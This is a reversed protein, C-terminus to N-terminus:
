EIVEDARALLSPPVDLGLAKATKLNIVFEFKTPAQVPLEGPPAGKLIRDVYSAARRYLDIVDVGYSMLGGSTAFYRYPYVAPLRRLAALAVIRERHMLAIPSPLVILGTNSERALADIAKTIDADDHVGVPTLQVGFSSAAAEIIRLFGVSAPVNSDLIVLVRNRTPVIEKLLELWKGAMSYEFSTFGTINGGPQAMNAVFGGGVPDPVQVFVIPTRRTARQLAPLVSDGNALIVDPVMGVLEAAYARIRETDGGAARLDIRINRGETWGLNQLAERFAALRSQAEPDTAAFGMLVGIRRTRDTSQGGADLPFALAAGLLAIVERRRM